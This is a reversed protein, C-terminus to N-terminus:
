DCYKTKTNKPPIEKHFLNTCFTLKTEQKTEGTEETWRHYPTDCTTSSSFAHTSQRIAHSDKGEKADSAPLLTSLMKRMHKKRKSLVNELIMKAYEYLETCAPCLVGNKEHKNKCYIHIMAEITKKAHL